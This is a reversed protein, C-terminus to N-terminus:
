RFNGEDLSTERQDFAIAQERLFLSLRIEIERWVNGHSTPSRIGFNGALVLIPILKRRDAKGVKVVCTAKCENPRAYAATAVADPPPKELPGLVSPFAM